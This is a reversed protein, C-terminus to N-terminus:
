YQLLRFTKEIKIKYKMIDWPNADNAYAVSVIKATDIVSGGGLAVIFDPKETKCMMIINEVDEIIPNPKIGSYEIYNIGAMNLQNVVIELYGNKKASEKGYIILAKNGYKPANQYFNELINKGFHLKTPNYSTFNKM